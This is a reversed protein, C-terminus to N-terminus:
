YFGAAQEIWGLVGNVTVRQEPSILGGEIRTGIEATAADVIGMALAMDAPQLARDALRRMVAARIDDVSVTEFDLLVRAAEVEEIVAAARAKVDDGEQIYRMAVQQVIVKAATDQLIGGTQCGALAVASLAAIAVGMILRKM